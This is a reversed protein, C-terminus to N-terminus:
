LKKRILSGAGIVLMVLAVIGVTLANDGTDALTNGGAKEPTTPQAPTPPLLKAPNPSSSTGITYHRDASATTTNGAVDSAIVSIIVKKDPNGALNAGPVVLSFRNGNLQTTYHMGNVVLTVVDQARAGTITGTITQPQTAETSDVVDDTAIPDITIQPAAPPMTDVTFNLAPSAQSRNGATDTETYTLVYNKDALGSLQVTVPGPATCSVTKTSVGDLYLTVTSGAESCVLTFVPDRKNTVNDSDSDGSDSAPTMDPAATPAAPPTADKWKAYLTTDANMTLADGPAYSTGGNPQTTWGDFTFGAKTLNGINGATFANSGPAYTERAAPATGSTAGNGDYTLTLLNSITFTLTKDVHQGLSNTTRVCVTLQQITEFDPSQALKLKDGDVRVYADNAAGCLSYTYGADAHEAAVTSLTGLETGVPTNEAIVPNGTFTLNTPQFSACDESDGVFQWGHGNIISLRETKAQCYTLTAAGVKLGPQVAQTSWAKLTEDYHARSIASHDLMGEAGDWADGPVDIVSTLKMGALSQDFKRAYSFMRLVSISSSTNWNGIPQNFSEAWEFMSDLYQVKSIDWNKMSDSGGNNFDATFSFMNGMKRVNSVNWGGLNRNFKKAGRFTNSMDVINSTNWNSVDGNFNTAGYFMHGLASVKTMDWNWNGSLGTMSSAEMFMSNLKTDSNAFVPTDQAKMEMNSAGYFANEMSTWAGTGWQDISILKLKDGDNNFFIRPFTGGIRITHTGPAAFTCTSSGTQGTLEPVGDNNCDLTYNYGGGIVIPVTFQNNNSAGPNDTKVTIVFDTANINDARATTPRLAWWGSAVVVMGM